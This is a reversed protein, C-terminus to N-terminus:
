AELFGTEAGLDQLKRVFADRDEDTFKMTRQVLVEPDWHYAKPDVESEDDDEIETTRSAAPNQFPSPWNRKTPCVRALHGQKGCEFCRGTKRYEEKEKNMNAKRIAASTDM